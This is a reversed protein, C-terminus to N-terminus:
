AIRGFTNIAQGIINDHYQMLKANSQMAKTAGIMATLTMIPDTGSSEVHRQLVDGSAPQLASDSQDELRMLSHGVKILRTPDTPMVLRLRAVQQGNQIIHGKTDIEVGASGDLHISQGNTDLVPMGNAAHILRGRGDMTLRGDRTLLTSDPQDPDGLVFFGKGRMALDLQNGTELLNGQKLSIRTPHGFVGGGLQELMFQPDAFSAMSGPSEIREPLRQRLMAIDPKFGITNANALNNAYLDQRFLNTMAGAASLYLGYNM